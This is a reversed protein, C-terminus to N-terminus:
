LITEMNIQRHYLYGMISTSLNRIFLSLPLLCGSLQLIEINRYKEIIYSTESQKDDRQPHTELHSFQLPKFFICSLSFFGQM